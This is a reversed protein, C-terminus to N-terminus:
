RSVRVIVLSANSQSEGQLRRVQDMVRIAAPGPPGTGALKILEEEELVGYLGSSMMLLCDDTQLRVPEQLFDVDKLGEMGIYATVMMAMKAEIEPVEGALISSMEEQLNLLHDRNLQLIRGSRVLFTRVNGVSAIGARGERILMCAMTAGTTLEGRSLLSRNWELVSKQAKGIMRLVQDSIDPASAMHEYDERLTSIALGAAKRAAQDLGIGDAIAVVLGKQPDPNSIYVVDNQLERTGIWQASGTQYMYPDTKAPPMKEENQRNRFM